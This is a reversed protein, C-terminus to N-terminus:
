NHQLQLASETRERICRDYIYDQADYYENSVVMVIASGNFNDLLHWDDPELVLCQNSQTLSYCCTKQSTEVTIDVSGQICVVAQWANHHRHGGRTSGDANAIYFIRKLVGPLIHEFVTLDGRECSHQALNLLRAM